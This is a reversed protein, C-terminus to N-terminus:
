QHTTIPAIKKPQWPLIPQHSGKIITLPLSDPVVLALDLVNQCGAILFKYRKKNMKMAQNSKVLGVTEPYILLQVQLHQAWSCILVFQSLTKEKLDGALSQTYLSVLQFSLTRVLTLVCDGLATLSKRAVCLLYMQDPHGSQLTKWGQKTHAQHTELYDRAETPVPETHTCAHVHQTRM